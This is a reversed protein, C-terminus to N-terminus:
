QARSASPLSELQIEEAPRAVAEGELGFETNNEKRLEVHKQLFVVLFGVGAFGVGIHWVTKIAGTFLEVVQDRIVPDAISDLFAKTALEYAQGNAFQAAISPDSIAGAKARIENTFIVSPITVGLMSGFCAAVSYLGTSTAVYKEDLPAQM